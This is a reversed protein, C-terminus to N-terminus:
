LNMEQNKPFKFSVADSRQFQFQVTEPLSVTKSESVAKFDAGLGSLSFGTIKPYAAPPIIIEFLGWIHPFGDNVSAHIKWASRANSFDLFLINTCAPFGDASFDWVSKVKQSDFADPVFDCAFPFGDNVTEDIMWGNETPQQLTGM